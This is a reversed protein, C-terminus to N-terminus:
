LKIIARSKTGTELMLKWNQSKWFIIFFSPYLYYTIDQKKVKRTPFISKSNRVFQRRHTFFENIM